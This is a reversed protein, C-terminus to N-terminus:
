LVMKAYEKAKQALHLPLPMLTDMDDYQLSTQNQMVEVKNPKGDSDFFFRRYRGKRIQRM